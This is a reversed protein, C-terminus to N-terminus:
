CAIVLGDLANEPIDVDVVARCAIVYIYIISEFSYIKIIIM